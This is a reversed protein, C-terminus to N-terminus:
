ALHRWTFLPVVEKRVMKTAKTLLRPNLETYASRGFGHKDMGQLRRVEMTATRGTVAVAYKQAANRDAAYVLLCYKDNGIEDVLWATVTAFDARTLPETSAQEVLHRELARYPDIPTPWVKAIGPHAARFSKLMGDSEDMTMTKGSNVLVTVMSQVSEPMVPSKGMSRPSITVCSPPDVDTAEWSKGCTMCVFEDNNRVVNKHELSM